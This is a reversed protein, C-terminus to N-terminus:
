QGPYVSDVRRRAIVELKIDALWVGDNEVEVMEVAM